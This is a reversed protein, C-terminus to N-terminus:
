GNKGKLFQKNFAPISALIPVGYKEELNGDNKIKVNLVSHLLLVLFCVAAGLLFGLISILVTNPSSPKDPLVAPDVVKLTSNEKLTGITVPALETIADAISKAEKPDHASVKAQFVETQNLATFDVMQRFHDVTDKIGAQDMVRHYFSDTELMEIYTNVVKQAYDLANINMTPDQSSEPTYVYLKVTSVYTEPLVYKSIGYGGAFGVIACLLIALINKQILKLAQILTVDM